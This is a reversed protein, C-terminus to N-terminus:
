ENVTKRDDQASCLSTSPDSYWGLSLDKWEPNGQNVLAAKKKRTWGKLQKERLIANEPDHFDEFYVLKHCKYKKTFGDILGHKHQYVRKELDGSVGIYLANNNESAMFYVRYTKDTM